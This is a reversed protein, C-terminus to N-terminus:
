KNLLDNLGKAFLKTDIQIDIGIGLAVGGGFSTPKVQTTSTTKSPRYKFEGNLNNKDAYRTETYVAGIGFTEVSATTTSKKVGNNEPEVVQNASFSVVGIGVEVGATANGSSIETDVLGDINVIDGSGFNIDAGITLGQINISAKAQVGM